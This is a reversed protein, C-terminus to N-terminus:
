LKCILLFHSPESRVEFVGRNRCAESFRTGTAAQGLAFAIQEDTYKFGQM